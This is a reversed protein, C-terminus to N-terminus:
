KIEQSYDAATKRDTIEELGGTYAESAEAEVETPYTELQSEQEEAEEVNNFDVTNLNQQLTVQLEQDGLSAMRGDGYIDEGEGIDGTVNEDGEGDFYGGVSEQLGRLPNEFKQISVNFFALGIILLSLAFISVVKTVIPGVSLLTGSSVSRVKQVVDNFLAQAMLSNSQRNDAATRLMERVEPNREEVYRLSLRRAHRWVDVAFFLAAFGLAWWIGVGFVALGLFLILFAVTADLFSNLLVVKFLEFRMESFLDDVGM